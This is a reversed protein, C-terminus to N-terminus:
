ESGEGRRRAADARAHASASLLVLNAPDAGGDEGLATRHHVGAGPQVIRWTGGSKVAVQEGTVACRGRQREMVEQRAKRYEAGYGDARWPESALREADPKRGRRKPAAAETVVKCRTGDPVLRPIRLKKAM